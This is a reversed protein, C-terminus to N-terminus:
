RILPGWLSALERHLQEALFGPLTQDLAVLVARTDRAARKLDVREQEAVRQVFAHPAFRSMSSEFSRRAVVQRFPKPLHGALNQGAPWSLSGSLEGLVAVAAREAEVASGPGGAEQVAAVLGRLDGAIAVETPSSSTM